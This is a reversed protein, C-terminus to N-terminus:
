EGFKGKGMSGETRRPGEKTRGSVIHTQWTYSCGERGGWDEGLASKTCSLGSGIRVTKQYM